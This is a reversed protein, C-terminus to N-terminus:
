HYSQSNAAAKAQLSHDLSLQEVRHSNLRDSKSISVLIVDLDLYEQGPFTTLLTVPGLEAM